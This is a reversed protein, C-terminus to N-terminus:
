GLINEPRNGIGLEISQAHENNINKQRYKAFKLAYTKGNPVEKPSPPQRSWKGSMMRLCLYSMTFCISEAFWNNWPIKEDRQTHVTRIFQEVQNSDHPLMYVHCLEHAFQYVLQDYFYDTLCEDLNIAYQRTLRSDTCFRPTLDDAPAPRIVIPKVGQPPVKAIKNEFIRLVYKCVTELANKRRPDEVGEIKLTLPAIM